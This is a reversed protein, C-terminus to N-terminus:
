QRIKRRGVSCEDVLVRDGHSPPNSVVLFEVDKPSRNRVQHAEGAAISVGQRASLVLEKEGVEISLTGALVYFFQTSKRHCHRAESTGAPMREEIVSLTPTQVLNWGDCGNGWSYHPATERDTM